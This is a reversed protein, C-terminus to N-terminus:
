AGKNNRIDVRGVNSQKWIARANSSFDNNEITVEHVGGNSNSGGGLSIGALNNSELRNRRVQIRETKWGRRESALEIGYNANKVINDEIVVDSGGDVYIGAACASRYTPNRRSDVNTIENGAILGNRARDIGARGVGEGGIIDIAINDSNYIKNQLIKFGDVNGNLVVAESQGLKLDHVRNGAIVVNQIASSKNGFVGIAHANSNNEVHHIDNNIISINKSAGDIRIATPTNSGRINRIEFGEIKVNQRDSIQIAAGSISSSGYDLIAGQEGQLTINDRSIRIREKYTGAMVRVIAGPPAKDLASQISEGPRVQIVTKGQDSERRTYQDRDSENRPGPRTDRPDNRKDSVPIQPTQRDNFRPDQMRPRYQFEPQSQYPRDNGFYASWYSDWYNFDIRQFQGYNQMSQYPPMQYGPRQWPIQNQPCYTFGARLQEPTFSGRPDYGYLSFQIQTNPLYRNASNDPRFNLLPQVQSPPQYLTTDGYNSTM